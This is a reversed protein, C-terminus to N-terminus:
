DGAHAQGIEYRLTGPIPAAGPAYDALSTVMLVQPEAQLRGAAAARVATAGVATFPQAAAAVATRPPTPLQAAVANSGGANLLPLSVLLAALSRWISSRSTDRSSSQSISRYM